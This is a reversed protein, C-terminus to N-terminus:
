VSQLIDTAIKVIELPSFPKNVVETFHDPGILKENDLEMGKASVLVVPIDKMQELARVSRCVDEGTAFPMQYDTIVLDFRREQLMEIAVRGDHALHTEFGAREFNFKLVNGMVHNDEAVLVCPKEVTDIM